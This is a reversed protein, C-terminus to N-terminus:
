FTAVVTYSLGLINSATYGSDVANGAADFKAVNGSVASTDKLQFDDFSKQDVAEHYKVHVPIDVSPQTAATFTISGDVTSEVDILTSYGARQTDTANEDVWAMLVFHHDLGVANVTQVYKGSSETWGTSLLTVDWVAGFVNSADVVLGESTDLFLTSDEIAGNSDFSSLHGDIATTVKDIKNENLVRGQNAALAKDTATSILNNVIDDEGIGGGGFNLPQGYIDAM